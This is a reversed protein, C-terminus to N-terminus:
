DAEFGMQGIGYVLAAGKNAMTPHSFIESYVHFRQM